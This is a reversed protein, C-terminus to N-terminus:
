SEEDLGERCDMLKKVVIVVFIVLFTIACVLNAGGDHFRVIGDAIFGGESINSFAAVLNTLGCIGSILLYSKGNDNVSFFANEFICSIVFVLLSIMVAILICLTPEIIKEIGSDLGFMLFVVLGLLTFFSNRYADGRARLQMEDYHSNMQRSKKTLSIILALVILFAGMSILKDSLM